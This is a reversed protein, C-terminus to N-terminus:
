KDSRADSRDHARAAHKSVQYQNWRDFEEAFFNSADHWGAGHRDALHARVIDAAGVNQIDTGARDRGAANDTQEARERRDPMPDLAAQAIEASAMPRAVGRRPRVLIERHLPHDAADQGNDGYDHGNWLQM